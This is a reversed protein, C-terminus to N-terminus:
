DDKIRGSMDTLSLCYQLVITINDHLGVGKPLDLFPQGCVSLDWM